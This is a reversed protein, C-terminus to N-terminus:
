PATWRGQDELTGVDTEYEGDEGEWASMASWLLLEDSGEDAQVEEDDNWSGEHTVGRFVVRVRNPDEGVEVTVVEERNAM